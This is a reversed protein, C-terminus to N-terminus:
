KYFYYTYCYSYLLYSTSCTEAKSSSSSKYTYIIKHSKTKSDYSISKIDVYGGNLKDKYFVLVETKKFMDSTIYESNATGFSSLYKNTSAYKGYTVKENNGVLKYRANGNKDYTVIVIDMLKANKGMTVKVKGSNGSLFNNNVSIHSDAGDEYSHGYSIESKGLKVSKVIPSYTKEVKIKSTTTVTKYTLPQYSLVGSKTLKAPVYQNLDSSIAYISKGDKSIYYANGKADNKQVYYKSSTTQKNTENNTTCLKYYYEYNSDYSYNYETYTKTTDVHKAVESSSLWEDSEFVTTGVLTGGDDPDGNYYRITYTYVTKGTYYVLSYLNKQVVKKIKFTYTGEKLFDVDWDYTKEYTKKAKGALYAKTVKTFGKKNTATKAVRVKKKLPSSLKSISTGNITVDKVSGFYTGGGIYSTSTVVESAEVNLAPALTSTLLMTAAFLAAIIKGKKM